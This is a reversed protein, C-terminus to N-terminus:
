PDIWVDVRYKADRWVSEVAGLKPTATPLYLIKLTCTSFVTWEKGSQLDCPRRGVRPGALRVPGGGM